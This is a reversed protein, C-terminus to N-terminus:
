VKETEGNAEPEAEAAQPAESKESAQPVNFEYIKRLIKKILFKLKYPDVSSFFLLETGLILLFIYFCRCNM